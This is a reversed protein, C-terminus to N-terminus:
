NVSKLLSKRFVRDLFTAIKAWEEGARGGQLAKTRIEDLLREREVYTVIMRYEDRSELSGSETLRRLEEL